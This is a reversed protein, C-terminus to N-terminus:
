DEQEEQDNSGDDAAEAEPQEADNDEIPLLCLKAIARRIVKKGARVDAVRVLGDPGPIVNEIRGLKWQMTPVNDERIIVLQGPKIEYRKHWKNRNQLTTLYDQHWRAWFHQVMQTQRQWRSLTTEKRDSLDPEAIDTLPRGVLFHGPTLPTADTPDESMPSIPRSNLVAEIRALVTTFEEFNMNATGTIRKLHYKASRVGAEWLGGFHPANPPIMRWDISTKTCFDDLKGKLQQSRFLEYLDRLKNKSGVFNLGNDSFLKVPKGRRSVFRQLAAIFADATLDGVLELHIARTAFCLFVAVYAKYTVTSRKNHQRIYMPGAFDVGANFFPCVGELRAKPLDGMMQQMAVPKAKFCTVCRRIIKRVTSRGHQVWFRQRLASLLLQQPAHLFEEHYSRVVADTFPHKSPLVMPHKQGVTLNSHRLRGGVRLVNFKSRDPFVCLTILKSRSHIVKGSELQQFDDPFAERQAISTLAATARNLEAITLHGSRRERQDDKRICDIFRLMTAMTRQMRRFSSEIEFLNFMAPPDTVPLSVTPNRTEPLQEVPITPPQAPWLPENQDLYTEDQWWIPCERIETPLLGRSLVDAPNEHTSVYKWEFNKTLEQIQIVRNSVYTDLRGPDTRIWSLAVTSDMWCVIRTFPISLIHTLNSILRALVLGGDLELRPITQKANKSPAIRSKSTLLRVTSYERSYVCRVYVAAGYGLMSADSFGHLEIQLPNPHPIVNRPIEIEGMEAIQNRFTDWEETDPLVDDWEVEVEWLKQMMVKAKFIVPGLLGIPDYLKAIDSYQSRKTPPGTNFRIEHLKTLFKDSSPQWTLGLTRTTKQDKFFADQENDANPVSKLLDPHNSAWKHLDFGASKMMAVFEKQLALAEELTDAGSLLDDMYVDDTGAKAALPFREIEDKCVQALTRTALFPACATGYTVTALQYVKVLEDPHRRWFIQQYKRDESRIRIQRFMQTMDATFVFQPFRFRIVIDYLKRQLAPGVYLHDNLSSGSTTGASADFVVRTKTTTSAPNFVAHHPMFYGGPVEDAEIMHGQDEYDKMFAVYQERLNEDRHMRREMQVFRSLAMARSDGLERISEKVPLGVEYRGDRLRRCTDSYSQEAAREDATLARTEPVAESDWFQKIQESLMENTVVGCTRTSTEDARRETAGGVVWGFTTEKCWLTRDDALPFSAGTFLDNFTQIGLLIDIRRSRNFLPDALHVGAPFREPDVDFTEIPIDTTIKKMMLFELEYLCDPNTTSRIRAAVKSKILQQAGSVGAVCVNAKVKPLKLMNVIRSSIINHMSGCDLLIRCKISNGYADEVVGVATYLVFQKASPISSTDCGVVSNSSSMSQSPTPAQEQNPVNSTPATHPLHLLTHHRGGCTRCSSSRCERLYHKNSFCNLCLGLEKIKASRDSASLTLFQGCKNLYHAGKCVFCKVNSNSSRSRSPATQIPFAKSQRPASREQPTTKGRPASKDKAENEISELCRCRSQLYEFLKEWSPLANITLQLEFDKRTGPDLRSCVLYIMFQESLPEVKLNMNALARLSQSVENILTRLDSGSESAIPELHFLQAIHKEVLVRKNEYEHRLAKWLSVFTDEASQIFRAKGDQIAAWLYFLKECDEPNGSFHPLPIDPLKPHAQHSSSVKVQESVPKPPDIERLRQRVLHRIEDLLDEVEENTQQFASVEDEKIVGYLKVETEHFLSRMEEVSEQKDELLSRDLKESDFDRVFILLKKGREKISDIMRTYSTVAIKKEAAM